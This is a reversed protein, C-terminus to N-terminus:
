TPHCSQHEQWGKKLTLHLHSGTSRGSNNKTKSFSLSHEKTNEYIVLTTELKNSM